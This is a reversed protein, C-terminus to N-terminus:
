PLIETESRVGPKAYGNLPLEVGALCYFEHHNNLAYQTAIFPRVHVKGVPLNLSFRATPFVILPLKWDYITKTANTWPNDPYFYSPKSLVLYTYRSRVYSIVATSFGLEITTRKGSFGLMVPIEMNNHSYDRTTANDLSRVTTWLGYHIVTDRDRQLKYRRHFYQLGITMGWRDNFPINWTLGADWTLSAAVNVREELESTGNYTWVRHAIREDQLPVMIGAGLELSISAHGQMPVGETQGIAPSAMATCCALALGLKLLQQIACTNPRPGVNPLLSKQICSM